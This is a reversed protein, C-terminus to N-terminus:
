IMYRNIKKGGPVRRQCIGLKSQDLRESEREALFVATKRPCKVRGEKTAIGIEHIEHISLKGM